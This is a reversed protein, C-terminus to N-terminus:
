TPYLPALAEHEAKKTAKFVLGDIFAEYFDSGNWQGGVSSYMQRDLDTIEERGHELMAALAPLTKPPTDPRAMAAMELLIAAATRADNESCAKQLNQKLQGMALKNTAPSESSRIEGESIGPNKRTNKRRVWYISIAVTLVMLLLILGYEQIRIIWSTKQGKTGEANNQVEEAGPMENTETNPEDREEPQAVPESPLGKGPLVEVTWKPIEATHEVGAETDWWILQLEPFELTGAQTPMYSISQKSIGYVWTGDTRTENVPQEPYISVGDVDAIELKPM